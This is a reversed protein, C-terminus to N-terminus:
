AASQLIGELASADVPVPNMGACIDRAALEAIAPFDDRTVGLSALTEPIGIRRRLDIIWARVSSFSEGSLQLSAAILAMAPEIASRNFTLVYPMLVANTLGHHHGHLAGIAHSLAHMAGLGKGFATAGMIAAAMMGARAELNAPEAVAIPLWKGVMAIGSAAIADAMPHFSSICLAELSHSLADMGTAATLNAPLSTTLEPDAIVVKPLLAPHLIARKAPISSDTIIASPEVEAGTGATTPVAIISYAGREDQAAEHGSWAFRWPSGGCGALLAITTGCDLGSGGGLAVVGDCQGEHFAAVGAAVDAGTPNEQVGAFMRPALGDKAAAELVRAALTTKALGRDTVVLPRAIDFRGCADALEAVRGAGFRIQTPFLWDGRLRATMDSTKHM